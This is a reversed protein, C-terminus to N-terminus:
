WVAVLANPAHYCMHPPPTKVLDAMGGYKCLHIVCNILVLQTEEKKNWAFSYQIEMM